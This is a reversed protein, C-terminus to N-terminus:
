FCERSIYKDVSLSMASKPLLLSVTRGRFEGLYDEGRLLSNNRSGRRSGDHRGDENLSQASGSVNTVDSGSGFSNTGSGSEQLSRIVARLELFQRTLM